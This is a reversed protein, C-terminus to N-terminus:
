RRHPISNFLFLPCWWKQPTESRIDPACVTHTCHSIDKKTLCMLKGTHSVCCSVKKLTTVRIDGLTQHKKAWDSESMKSTRTAKLMQRCRMKMLRVPFHFGHVSCWQWDSWNPKACHPMKIKHFNALQCTIVIQMDSLNNCQLKCLIVNTRTKLHHKSLIGLSPQSHVLFSLEKITCQAKRKQLAFSQVHVSIHVFKFNTCCWQLWSPLQWLQTHWSFLKLAMSKWWFVNSQCFICCLCNQAASVM